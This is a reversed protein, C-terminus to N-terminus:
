RDGTPKASEIYGWIENLLSSDGSKLVLRSRLDNASFGRLRVLGGFTEELFSSGYGLTGDLLIVVRSAEQLAPVLIGDRFKEGPYPGDAVFRGAPFRSFDRAISITKDTM